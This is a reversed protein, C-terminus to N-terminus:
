YLLFPPYATQAHVWSTGASVQTGPFWESCPPKSPSPGWGGSYGSAWLWILYHLGSGAQGLTQCSPLHRYAQQHMMNTRHRSWLFALIPENVQVWSKSRWGLSKTWHGRCYLHPGPGGKSLRGKIKLAGEQEWGSARHAPHLVRKAQQSGWPVPHTKNLLFSAPSDLKQKAIRQSMSVVSSKM